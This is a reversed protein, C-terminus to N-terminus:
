PIRPGGLAGPTLFLPIHTHIYIYIYTHINLSRKSKGLIEPLIKSGLVVLVIPM